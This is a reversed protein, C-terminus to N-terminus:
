PVFLCISPRVSPLGITGEPTLVPMPSICFHGQGQTFFVLYQAHCVMSHTIIMHLLSSNPWGKYFIHSFNHTFCSKVLSDLNHGQGKSNIALHPAPCVEMSLTVSDHRISDAVTNFFFGVWGHHLHVHYICSGGSHYKNCDYTILPHTCCTFVDNSNSNHGQEQFNTTLNQAYCVKKCHIIIM